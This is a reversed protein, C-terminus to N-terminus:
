RSWWGFLLRKSAARSLRQISDVLPLEAPCVEVCNQAKGCDAVGGEGMALDVIRHRETEDPANERLRELQHLQSPGVFAGSSRVEPCAELCAGCSTCRSSTYLAAQHAKTLARGDTVGGTHDSTAEDLGRFMRAREVILDRVVPFKSLPELTVVKPADAGTVPTLCAQKVRGNVLMTCSGCAGELCSWEFGVPARAEASRELELLATCVTAGDPVEVEFQEYHKTDPKNPGDQRLVRLKVRTTPRSESNSM